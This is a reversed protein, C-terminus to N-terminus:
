EREQLRDARGQLWRRLQAKGGVAATSRRAAAGVADCTRQLTAVMLPYLRRRFLLVEVELYSDNGFHQKYEGGPGFDLTEPRDHSFLDEVVHLLLVTGVSWKGWAPDYGVDAYYFRSRFQYGVMFCCPKGGCSLLYSRLWGREAALQLRRRLAGADRLGLGLRNFQYTKRSIATSHAVFSDIDDVRSVRAIDLAGLARLKKVKRRWTERTKASFRGMYEPFSGQLDIYPRPVPGRARYLHFHRRVLPSTRLYTWVFSDARLTEMWVADFDLRSLMGRFLADFAGATEPLNPAGGLLRLRRLGMTAATVPGLQLTLPIPQVAVPAVGLIAGEHEVFCAELRGPEEQFYTLLWQPDSFHVTESQFAGACKDWLSRVYSLSDVVRYRLIEM